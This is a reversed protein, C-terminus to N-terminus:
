SDTVCMLSNQLRLIKKWNEDSAKLQLTASLWSRVSCPLSVIM